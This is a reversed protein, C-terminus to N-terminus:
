PREGFVARAGMRYRFGPRSGILCGQDGELWFHSGEPSFAFDLNDFGYQQRELPLDDLNEPFIHLLFQAATDATSCPQKFYILAGDKSYVDFDSRATLDGLVFDRRGFYEARSYLFLRRNQPTLSALGPEQMNSVIFDVADLAGGNRALELLSPTELVSKGALHFDLARRASGARPAGILM